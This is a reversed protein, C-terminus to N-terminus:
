PLLDVRKPDIIVVNVLTHIDYKTLVINIWQCSSNFTISPIAHLQEQKMHFGVDQMITAFTYHVEDHAGTHKNDHVCMM